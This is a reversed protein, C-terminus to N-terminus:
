RLELAKEPLTQQVARRGHRRKVRVRIQVLSVTAIAAAVGGLSGNWWPLQTLDCTMQLAFFVGMFLFCGGLRRLQSLANPDLPWAEDPRPYIREPQLQIWGGALAVFAGFAVLIWDLRVMTEEQAPDVGSKHM